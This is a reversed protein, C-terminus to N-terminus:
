EEAVIKLFDNLSVLVPVEAGSSDQISVAISPYGIAGPLVV